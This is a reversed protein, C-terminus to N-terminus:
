TRSDDRQSQCLKKSKERFEEALLIHKTDFAVKLTPQIEILM